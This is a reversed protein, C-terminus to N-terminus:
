DIRLRADVVASGARDQGVILPNLDLEAVDELDDVLQSLRLLMEELFPVDVPKKGRAGALLPYGKISRIMEAADIDSIPHVRVAVDRLVEVHVGGLGFLLLPGFQPDSAAGLIVEADGQIQAQVRIKLKKDRRGLRRRLDEYAEFVEDGNKLGVRVGGVDTKHTFKESEAKLVVPYGVENAFRIAQGVDKAVVSPAIPIGYAELIEGVDEGVLMTRGARRARKIARRARDADVEFRVGTGVPRDRFRRYRCLASLAAAAEEPFRYVPVGAERLVAVGEDDKEKGMFCALTTLGSKSAAEAIARAVAPADTTVPSVFVALVADVGPDSGVAALARAFRNADADAILDTPNQAAAGEPLAAALRKRTRASFEALQLGHSVCADTALIGPGGANTVIAVRDGSPIPQNAFAKAMTFLEAVSRARLVGCQELLSEAAIDRGVLSGTHSAAARAGAASRGSKVVVIPKKRSLERAIATFRRPEGFSELYLLIVDTREDEGFYQVLDSATVDVLNGISAFLSIGVGLERADALIAEGLAGSQTAFAVRGPLPRVAAFSANLRVDDATNVIGMCNPGIVRMGAQAAIEKLAEERAAGESGAERFGATIVVLGKVGKAACDKAVALVHQRPVAIVALDVPDGIDTVRAYAKMSQVVEASGNVPFVPGQFEGEVLNRLVERGISHRRRSAGVVAVSRPRFLGDISNEEAKPKSNRKPKTNRKSKSKMNM